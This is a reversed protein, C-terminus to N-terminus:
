REARLRNLRMPAQHLAKSDMIDGPKGSKGDPRTKHRGFELADRGGSTHTLPSRPRLATEGCPRDGSEDGPPACRGVHLREHVGCRRRSLRSAGTEAIAAGRPGAMVMDTLRRNILCRRATIM